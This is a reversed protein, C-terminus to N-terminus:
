KSSSESFVNTFVSLLKSFINFNLKRKLLLIIELYSIFPTQRTSEMVKTGKEKGQYQIIGRERM